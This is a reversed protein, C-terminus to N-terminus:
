VTLVADLLERAARDNNCNQCNGRVLTASPQKCKKCFFVTETEKQMLQKARLELMRVQHYSLRGKSSVAARCIAVTIVVTVFMLLVTLLM